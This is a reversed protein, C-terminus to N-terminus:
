KKGVFPILSVLYDVANSLEKGIVSGIRSVLDGIGPGHFDKNTEFVERGREEQMRLSKVNTYFEFSGPPVGGKGGNMSGAIAGFAQITEERASKSAKADENLDGLFFEAINAGLSSLSEGVIDGVGGETAGRVASIGTGVAAGFGVAGIGKGVTARIGSAVKGAARAGERVLSGLESKARSADLKVRFKTEDTM